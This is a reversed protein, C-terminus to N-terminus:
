FPAEGDPEEEQPRGQYVPSVADAPPEYNPNPEVLAPDADPEAPAEPGAEDGGAEEAEGEGDVVRGGVPEPEQPTPGREDPVGNHGGEHREQHPQRERRPPVASSSM